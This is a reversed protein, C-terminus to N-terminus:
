TEDSITLNSKVPIWEMANDHRLMVREHEVQAIRAGGPLTAGQKYFNGDIVCFGTTGSRFALTVSYNAWSAGTEQGVQMPSNGESDNQDPTYGFLRLDAQSRSSAPPRSLAKMNGGLAEMERVVAPSPMSLTPFVGAGAHSFVQDEKLLTRYADVGVTGISLVGIVIAVGALHKRKMM